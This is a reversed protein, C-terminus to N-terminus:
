SSLSQAPLQQDPLLVKDSNLEFRAGPVFAAINSAEMDSSAHWVVDIKTLFAGWLKWFLRKKNKKLSLAGRDLEGSPSILVKRARMLGLRLAVIPNLTFVPNWLSNVCLLDFPIMSLEGRLGVGEWSRGREGKM